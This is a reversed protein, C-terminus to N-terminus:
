AGALVIFIIYGKKESGKKSDFDTVPLFFFASFFSFKTAMPGRSRIELSGRLLTLDLLKKVM